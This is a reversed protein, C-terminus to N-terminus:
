SKSPYLIVNFQLSQRTKICPQIISHSNGTIKNMRPNSSNAEHIYNKMSLFSNINLNTQVEFSCLDM